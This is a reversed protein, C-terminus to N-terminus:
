LSLELLGDFFALWFGRPGGGLRGWAGAVCKRGEIWILLAPIM